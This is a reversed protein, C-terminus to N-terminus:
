KNLLGAINLTTDNIIKLQHDNLETQKLYYTVVIFGIPKNDYDLILNSYYSKIYQSKLISYASRDTSKIDEMNSINIPEKDLLLKNWLFNTSIPINQYDRYLASIGLQTAEYTNSCKRFDVGTLTKGGNHYEFVSIREADLENLMHYILQQIKSANEAYKGLNESTLDETERDQLLKIILDDQKSLRKMIQKVLFWCFLGLVVLGVASVGYKEIMQLPQEPITQLLIYLLM